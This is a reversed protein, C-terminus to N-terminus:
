CAPRSCLLARSWIATVVSDPLLRLCVTWVWQAETWWAAFSTAARKLTAPTVALIASLLPLRGGPKHSVDGAPQSGLVPTLEPVPLLGRLPQPPLQLGPPFYRCGVVPNIVWTVQLSLALFRSWSRFGASQLRTHAVKKVGTMSSLMHTPYILLPGKVARNVVACLLVPVHHVYCAPLSVTRASRSSECCTAMSPSCSVFVNWVYWSWCRDEGAAHKVCLCPRYFAQVINSFTKKRRGLLVQM